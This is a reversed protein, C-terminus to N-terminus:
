PLLMYDVANLFMKEGDEYLDYLGATDGSIGDAERAGTLFVLRHGALIDTGAGGAHTMSAGAQWEGIMMGGVTPDDATAVAALLTGDDNLPDTNVSIGRALTTGDTPYVAIGAFPNVMTGGSLQIGAFVPHSPTNVALTIDGTTDGMTSAVTFGMRSFRTSYGGAIIMPTAVSNWATAGDEQYGSSAVSRSVIVLDVANLVDLDPSSTTIYRMVEYGNAELLDTYPKDPAETFGAGAADASPVNDDAHFSVWAILPLGSSGPDAPGADPHLKIDDIFILGSANSGEVGIVLKTVSELNTNVSSLDVNFFHWLASDPTQPYTVKINNIMLFLTGTNESKGRFAISLTKAGGVTWDQPEAFTRETQSAVGGTNTYYFPMSQSSGPATNVTEMIAGEFYPSAVSWIDHGIGAGTGNGPYDVPFFEDASYGFGDVWTQFPRNPSINNYSEFDDVVLTAPTSFSWVPGAWVSPDETDNVEDVRWYYTENLLLDQSTLDLSNTSSSTSPATGDAVADADTSVYVTHQGAERGARWTSVTDLPVDVSGSVPMPGRVLTPLAYFQVESLSYQKFFVSWNSVATLKVYKAVADDMAVFQPEYDGIGQAFQVLGEEGGLRTWAVGDTSHTIIVDKFGFGLVNEAAQNSNWVKLEHLKQIQEFEFTISAAESPDQDRSTVWMDEPNDSHLGTQTDLGSGNVTNNPESGQSSSSATVASPTVPIAVPEVEFSWISGAHVTKDPSTNVEDVRWYYTNGLVLRGPDFSAIDLGPATPATADNVEDYTEGFYVNHTVPLEGPTWTLVIDRIVDTDGDGPNAGSATVRSGRSSEPPGDDTPTYDPNTTLVIKDIILGNERQWVTLRHVGASPVEFTAPEPDMTDNSWTYSANWGSMRDSTTNEEANLGAHCSDDNGSAGWARIWVYHTGTKVFEVEYEMRPNSALYGANANGGGTAEMAEVGTFGDKPGTLVFTGGSLEIIEDYHEAEVSVIGDAGTDQRLPNAFLAGTILMMIVLGACLSKSNM